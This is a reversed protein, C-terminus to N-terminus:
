VLLVGFRDLLLDIQLINYSCKPALREVTLEWKQMMVVHFCHLAETECCDILQYGVLQFQVNYRYNTHCGAGNWDGQKLNVMCILLTLCQSVFPFLASYVLDIRFHNLLLLSPTKCWYAQSGIFAGGRCNRYDEAVLLVILLDWFNCVYMHLLCLGRAAAFPSFMLLRDRGSRLIGMVIGLASRSLFKTFTHVHVELIYRAGWLQDAASIGIAPGVQFEWQQV